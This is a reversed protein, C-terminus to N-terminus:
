PHVGMRQTVFWALANLNTVKQSQYDGSAACREQRRVVFNHECRCSM